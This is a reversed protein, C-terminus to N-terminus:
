EQSDASQGGGSRVQTYATYLELAHDGSGDGSSCFSGVSGGVALSEFDERERERERQTCCCLMRLNDDTQAHTGAACRLTLLLMGYHARSRRRRAAKRGLFGPQLTTRRSPARV